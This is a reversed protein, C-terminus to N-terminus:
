GWVGPHGLSLTGGKSVFAVHVVPLLVEIMRTNVRVPNDACIPTM